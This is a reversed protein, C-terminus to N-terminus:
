QCVFVERLNQVSQPLRRHFEIGDRKPVHTGTSAIAYRALVAEDGHHLYCYALLKLLEDSGSGCLIQEPPIVQTRCLKGRLASATVDPYVHLSASTTRFAEVPLSSPGLASENSSLKFNASRWVCLLGFTPESTSSGPRPQPGAASDEIM